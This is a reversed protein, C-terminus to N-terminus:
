KGQYCLVEGDDTVVYLRGHAAALGNYVPAAPLELENTVEDIASEDGIQAPLSWLINHHETRSVAKEESKEVEVEVARDATGAAFLRDGTSVLALLRTEMPVEKEWGDASGKGFLTGTHRRTDRDMVIHYGFVSDPSFALMQAHVGKYALTHINKRLALPLRTWTAELMSVKGSALYPTKMNRNSLQYNSNRPSYWYRLPRLGEEFEGTKPHLQQNSVYVYEGDTVVINSVGFGDTLNKKWSIEGTEPEMAYVFIGGDADPARGATAFATGDHVLVSGSVPWVSALQGYSVIRRDSPALLRRWVLQGDDAKVCYVWGDHSGFLCLGRYVTPPSDIRGGATFEWIVQGTEADLAALRHNLPDAIFARGGAVVPASLAQGVRLSWEDRVPSPVPDVIRSSWALKLEAPVTTAAHASRKSDSRFSAWDELDPGTVEALTDGFASGKEFRPAADELPNSMGLTSASNMGMFGRVTETFCGCAHPSVYALGNAPLVGLVCGGRAFKFSDKRGSDREVYTAQRSFLIFNETALLPQCGIKAPAASEPWTGRSKLQRVVQGTQPDLGQWFEQGGLTKEANAQRMWVLGQGYFHGVFRTDWGARGFAETTKNWVESGDKADLAQFIGNDSLFLMGNAAFQIVLRPSRGRSHESESPRRWVEEGDNLSLCLTEHFWKGDEQRSGVICFARGGDVVTGYPEKAALLWKEEGTEADYAAIGDAAETVILGGSHLLKRPLRTAAFQYLVKGNAADIAVFEEGNVGYIRDGDVVLSEFATGPVPSPPVWEIQWLPYGNYANRATLHYPRTAKNWVLNDAHNQTVCFIRGNSTLMGLSSSKRGDTPFLPGALWQVGNPVGLASENSFVNGNAGHWQHTWEDMEEPRPKRITKYGSPQRLFLLGNPSLVRLIEEQPIGMLDDAVVATVLNDVYPLTDSSWSEVSVQNYLGQSQLLRRADVVRRADRDLRHVLFKGGASLGATELIDGGGLQVILGGRDSLGELVPEITGARSVNEGVFFSVMLVACALTGVISYRSLTQM